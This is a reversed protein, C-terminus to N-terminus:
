VMLKMIDTAFKFSQQMIMSCFDLTFQTMTIPFMIIQKPDTIFSAITHM